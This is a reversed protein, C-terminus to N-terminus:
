ALMFCDLDAHRLAAECVEWENVGLGIAGVVGESRLRALASFAGDMAEAFYGPQRAGHTARDIDHIYVIDVRDLGLRGLSEELSRLAGDHSYDYRAAFPLGEVYGSQEPPAAPVPELLRGVKTSVYFADRPKQALVRGMRKESLGHGYLPATDFYRLGLHWAVELADDATEDDLASYLNGLPAGGFGLGTTGRLKALVGPESAADRKM